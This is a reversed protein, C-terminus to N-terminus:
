EKPFLEGLKGRAGAYGEREEIRQQLYGELHPYMAIAPYHGQDRFYEAIGTAYPAGGEAGRPLRQSLEFLARFAEIHHASATTASM